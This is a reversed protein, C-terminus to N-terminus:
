KSSLFGLHTSLFDAENDYIPPSHRIFMFTQFMIWKYGKVRHPKWESLYINWLNLSLNLYNGNGYVADYFLIKNVNRLIDVGGFYFTYKNAAKLNWIVEPMDNGEHYKKINM